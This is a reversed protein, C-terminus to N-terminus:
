KNTVETVTQETENKNTNKKKKKKKGTSSNSGGAPARITNKLMEKELLGILVACRKNYTNENKGLMEKDEKM